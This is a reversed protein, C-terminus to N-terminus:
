AASFGALHDWGHEVADFCRVAQRLNCPNADLEDLASGAPRQQQQMGRDADFGGVAHDVLKGPRKCQDRRGMWTEPAAFQGAGHGGHIIEGIEIEVEHLCHVQALDDQRAHREAAPDRRLDRDFRGFTKECRTSASATPIL